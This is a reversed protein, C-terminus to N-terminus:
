IIGGQKLLVVDNKSYNLEECYIETNHQGLLPATRAFQWPCNPLKFIEGPITIKGIVPHEVEMFYERDGLQPCKLLDEPTQVVGTVWGDSMTKDFYDYVGSEKAMQFKTELPIPPDTDRHMVGSENVGFLLEATM